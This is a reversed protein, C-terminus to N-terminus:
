ELYDNRGSRQKMGYIALDIFLEDDVGAWFEATLWEYDRVHRYPVCWLPYFGIEARYWDM